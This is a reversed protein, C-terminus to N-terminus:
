SLFLSVIPIIVLNETTKKSNSRKGPKKYSIIHTGLKETKRHLIFYNRYKALPSKSVRIRELNDRTVFKFRNTPQVFVNYKM